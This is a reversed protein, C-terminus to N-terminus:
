ADIYNTFHLSIVALLINSGINLKLQFWLTKREYLNGLVAHVRGGEARTRSRRIGSCPPINAPTWDAVTPPPYRWGNAAVNLSLPLSLYKQQHFWHRFIYLNNQITKCPL